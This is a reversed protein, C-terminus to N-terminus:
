NRIPCYGNSLEIELETNDEPSVAMLQGAECTEWDDEIANHVALLSLTPPPEGQIHTVTVTTEFRGPSSMVIEGVRYGPLIIRQTADTEGCEKSIEESIYLGIDGRQFAAYAITGGLKLTETTMRCGDRVALIEAEDDAGTSTGTNEFDADLPEIHDCGVWWAFVALILLRNKIMDVECMRISLLRDMAVEM